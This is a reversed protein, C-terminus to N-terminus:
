KIPEVPASKAFRRIFNMVMAIFEKRNYAALYILGGEILDPVRRGIVVKAYECLAFALFAACMGILIWSAIDIASLEVEKAKIAANIRALTGIVGFLGVWRWSEWSIHQLEQGFGGAITQQAQAAAVFLLFFAGTGINYKYKM